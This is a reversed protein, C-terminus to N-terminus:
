GSAYLAATTPDAPVSLDTPQPTSRLAVPCDPAAARVPSRFGEIAQQMLQERFLALIDLTSPRRSPQNRWKPQPLYADTRTPGYAQLAALLLMAYVAVQFQPVRWTAEESWVQAQDVGLLDKEDRHNVEIEWRDFYVQLLLEDDSTLDTTLLYAPDRYMLRAGIRPRYSLPQIVYLRLLRDRTGSRWLVRDITKFHLDHIKGAGYVKATHWPIKPDSLIEKPLPLAEGYKRRRGWIQREADTLPRFLRVDGRARAIVAVREPLTRLVNRNCYGGDVAMLLDREEQGARDMSERLDQILQAGQVSLNQRRQAERYAAWAAEDARKGPKKASPAPRFRVPIARAPGGLGEPRLLASAQIFRHGRLFGPAFPPSMPDHLYRVGPVRRGTKKTTTDDMAVSFPGTTLSLCRELVPQFVDNPQWPSRSFFRYSASWDEFQGHVACLARSITRRGWAVAFGYALKRAHAFSRAQPFAQRTAQLLAEFAAVLGTNM